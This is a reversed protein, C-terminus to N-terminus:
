RRSVSLNLSNSKKPIGLCVCVQLNDQKKIFITSSPKQQKEECCSGPFLTTNNCLTVFFQNECWDEELWYCVFLCSKFVNEFVCVCM